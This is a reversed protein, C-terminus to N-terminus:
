PQTWIHQKAIQRMIKQEKKSQKINIKIIGNERWQQSILQVEKKTPQEKNWLNFLSFRILTLWKDLIVFYNFWLGEMKKSRVDDKEIRQQKNRGSGCYGGEQEEAM